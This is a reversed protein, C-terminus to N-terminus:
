SFTDPGNQKKGYERLVSIKFDVNRGEPARTVIDYFEM